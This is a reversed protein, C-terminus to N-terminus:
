NKMSSYGAIHTWYILKGTADQIVLYSGLEADFDSQEIDDDDITIALRYALGTLGKTAKEIDAAVQYTVKSQWNKIQGKKM